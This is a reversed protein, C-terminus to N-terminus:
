SYGSPEQQLQSLSISTTPAAPPQASGYHSFLLHSKGKPSVIGLIYPRGTAAVYMTGPDKSTHDILPIARKGRYTTVAGRSLTGTPTMTRTLASIDVLRSFDGFDTNDTTTQIWKDALLQGAAANGAVKTWTAADATMYINPPTVVVRFTEGDRSITGGGAGHGSVINLSVRHGGTVVTGSITVTSTGNTAAKADALIRTPSKAAEGNSSAKATAVAPAVWLALASAVILAGVVIRRM